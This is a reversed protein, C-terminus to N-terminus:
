PKIAKRAADLKGVIATRAEEGEQGCRSYHTRLTELQDAISTIADSVEPSWGDRTACERELTHLRDEFERNFRDWAPAERAAMKVASRSELRHFLTELEDVCAKPSATVVVGADTSRGYVDRWVSRAVLGIFAATFALFIVYM